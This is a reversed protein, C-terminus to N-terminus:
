AMDATADYWGLVLHWAATSAAGFNNAAVNVSDAVGNHMFFQFRDTAGGVYRLFYEQLATVGADGKFIFPRDDTPDTDLYVWASLTFDINGMSLAANDVSTLTESNAAVFQGASGVRGAAVTVTNSDTLTNAGIADARAGSAEELKWYAVAASDLTCTGDPAFAGM